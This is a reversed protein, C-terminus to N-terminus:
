RRHPRRSRRRATRRVPATRDSSRCSQFRDRHADGSIQRFDAGPHHVDARPQRVRVQRRVRRARQELRAALNQRHRRFFPSGRIMVFVGPTMSRYGTTTAPRCSSRTSRRRIRRIRAAGRAAFRCRRRSSSRSARAPSRDSAATTARSALLDREDVARMRIQYTSTSCRLGTWTSLSGSSPSKLSSQIGTQDGSECTAPRNSAATSSDHARDVHIRERGPLRRLDGVAHAVRLVRHEVAVALIQVERRRGIGTRRQLRVDAAEARGTVRLM